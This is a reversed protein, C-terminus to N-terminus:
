EGETGNGKAAQAAHQRFANLFSASMRLETGCAACHAVDGSLSIDRQAACKPCRAQFPKREASRLVQGFAVLTRRMQETLNIIPKGCAMCVVENTGKDLKAETSQLCGKNTCTILM